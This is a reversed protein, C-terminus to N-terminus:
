KADTLPSARVTRVFAAAHGVPELMEAFGFRVLVFRGTFM